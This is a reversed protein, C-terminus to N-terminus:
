FCRVGSVGWGFRKTECFIGTYERGVGSLSGVFEFFFVVDEKDEQKKSLQVCFDCIAAVVRDCDLHARSGLFCPVGSVGWGFRKTESLVGRTSGVFEGGGKRRPNKSKVLNFVFIVFRRVVVCDCNL